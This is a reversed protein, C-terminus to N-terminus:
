DSKVNHTFIKGYSISFLEYMEDSLKRGIKIATDIHLLSLHPNKNLNHEILKSIENSFHDFEQNITKLVPLINTNVRSSWIRLTRMIAFANLLEDGAEKAMVRIQESLRYYDDLESPINLQKLNTLRALAKEIKIHAQSIHEIMKESQQFGKDNVKTDIWEKVKFATYITFLLAMSAVLVSAGPPTINNDFFIYSFFLTTLVGIVFSVISQLSIKLFKQTVNHMLNVM